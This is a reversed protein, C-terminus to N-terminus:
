GGAAPAEGQFRRWSRELWARAQSVAGASVGVEHAVELTGHGRALLEAVRRRGPPLSGLWAAYDLRFCAEEAPTCRNTWVGQAEAAVAQDRGDANIVRFGRARQARPHYVDMAGRGGSRNALRRGNRVYRVANNAIGHAGVELPDKGRALLGVWAAWAAATAEALAEEYDQRRMRRRRRFAWRAAGEVAALHATFQERATTLTASGASM